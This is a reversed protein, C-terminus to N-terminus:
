IQPQECVYFSFSLIFAIRKKLREWDNVKLEYLIRKPHGHLLKHFSEPKGIHNGGVGSEAWNEQNNRGMGGRDWSEAKM